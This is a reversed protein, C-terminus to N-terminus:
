RTISALSFDPGAKNGLIKLILPFKPNRLVWYQTGAASVVYVADVAKGKLVINQGAPISKVTYTINDYTATKDKLLKTFFTNSFFFSTEDDSLQKEKNPALDDWNLKTGKEWGAKTVFIKGNFTKAGNKVTYHLDVGDNNMTAIKVKFDVPSGGADALYNITTGSNITQAGANGQTRATTVTLLGFALLILFNKM